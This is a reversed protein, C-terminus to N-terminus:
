EFPCFRYMGFLARGYLQHLIAMVSPTPPRKKEPFGRAKKPKDSFIHLKHGTLQLRESISKHLGM